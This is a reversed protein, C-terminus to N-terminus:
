SQRTVQPTTQHRAKNIAGRAKDIEIQIELPTLEKDSKNKKYLVYSILGAIGLILITIFTKKM